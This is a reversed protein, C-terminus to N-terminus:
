NMFITKFDRYSYLSIFNFFCEDFVFLGVVFEHIRVQRSAMIYHLSRPIVALNERIVLLVESYLGFM